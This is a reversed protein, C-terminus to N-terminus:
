SQPSKLHALRAARGTDRGARIRDQLLGADHGIRVEPIKLIPRHRGIYEAACLFLEEERDGEERPGHCRENATDRVRPLPEIDEVVKNLLMALKLLLAKVMGGELLEEAGEPASGVVRSESM